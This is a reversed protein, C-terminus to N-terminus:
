FSPLPLALPTPSPLPLPLKLPSRNSNYSFVLFIYSISHCFKLQSFNSNHSNWLKWGFNSWFFITKKVWVIMINIVLIEKFKVIRLDQVQRLKFVMCKGKKLSLTLHVTQEDGFTVYRFSQPFIKPTHISIAFLILNLSCTLVDTLSIYTQFLFALWVKFNSWGFLAFAPLLNVDVRFKGYSLAVRYNTEM